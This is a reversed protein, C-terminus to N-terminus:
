KLRVAPDGLLNYVTPTLPIGRGATAMAFVLATPIKSTM